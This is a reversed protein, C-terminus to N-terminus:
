VGHGSWALTLVESTVDNDSTAEGTAFISNASSLTAGPTAYGAFSTGNSLTLTAFAKQTTAGTRIVTVRAVWSLAASTAIGSAGTDLITTSAFKLRIRKANANNAISGAFEAVVAQGNVALANASVSLTQLTDEGTGVNGVVSTTENIRGFATANQTTSSGPQWVVLGGIDTRAASPRQMMMTPATSGGPGAFIQLTGITDAIRFIPETDSAAKYLDLSVSGISLYNGNFVFKDGITSSITESSGALAKKVYDTSAATAITGLGLTTRQAAADADDVLARGASTFTALAATGSGTFYPLRDAASTLGAIASLEADQAQVNTGIVLGLNTRATAADSAGTGGDAVALDTIGTISGGTISVSSAAQTAITGLGLTTRQASADADDVLARGAATFTALAATGSGTYYPVRDAASTLGAIANLDAGLVQAKTFKVPGLDEEGYVTDDIDMVGAAPSLDTLATGATAVDGQIKTSLNAVTLKKNTPTGAPDDVTVLLDDDTPSADATLDTIKQDAM